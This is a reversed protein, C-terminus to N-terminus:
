RGGQRDVWRERLGEIAPPAPSKEHWAYNVMAAFLADRAAETEKAVNAVWALLVSAPVNGNHADAELRGIVDMGRDLSEFLAADSMTEPHRQAANDQDHM